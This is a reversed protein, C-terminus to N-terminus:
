GKQAHHVETLHKIIRQYEDISDDILTRLEM